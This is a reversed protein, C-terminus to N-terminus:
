LSVFAPIREGDVKSLLLSERCAGPLQWKGAFLRLWALGPSCAIVFVGALADGSKYNKAEERGGRGETGKESGASAARM